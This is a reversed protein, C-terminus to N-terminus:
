QPELGGAKWQAAEQQSALMKVLAAAADPEAAKATVAADYNTYRQLPAPVAGGFKVFPRIESINFFGIEMEGNAIQHQGPDLAVVRVKPKIEDMVGSNELIARILIGSGNPMAPDGVAISKANLLAAKFAAPTAIDPPTAQPAVAMGIGGRSVKLRTDAKLGGLKAYDDMAPASQVVVDFVEGAALRQSVALPSGVTYNVKNGTAKEYDAVIKDLAGKVGGVSILKVEAASAISVSMLVVALGGCFSKWFNAGVIDERSLRRDARLDPLRKRRQM